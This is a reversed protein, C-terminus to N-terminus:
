GARRTRRDLPGAFALGHSDCPVAERLDALLREGRAERRSQGVGEDFRAQAEKAEATKSQAALSKGARVAVMRKRAEACIRATSPRRRGPWGRRSFRRARSPACRYYWDDPEPARARREDDGGRGVTGRAGPEGAVSAIRAAFSRRRRCTSWRASDMGVQLDVVRRDAPRQLADLDARAEKSSARPPWHWGTDTCGSPAWRRISRADPQPEALLDDWEGFRVMALIPEALLLGDRADADGAGDLAAPRRGSRARIRSGRRQARGHVGLVVSVRLQPWTCRTGLRPLPKM